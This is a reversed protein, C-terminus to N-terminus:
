RIEGGEHVLKLEVDALRFESVARNRQVLAFLDFALEAHPIVLTSAPTDGDIRVDDLSLLPGGGMWRGDLRGITVPRGLRDSLWHGVREPHQALWPMAMQTLGALVGLLIVCTAATALLTFRLRRLHARWNASM